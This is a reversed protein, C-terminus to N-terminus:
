HVVEYEKLFVVNGQKLVEVLKQKVQIAVEQAKSKSVREIGKMERIEKTFSDTSLTSMQKAVSEDGILAIIAMGKGTPEGMKFEFDDSTDPIILTQGAQLYGNNEGSNKDPFICNVQGKSDIDWIVLYGPQQSTNTIQFKLLEGIRLKEHPLIKLSLVDRLPVTPSPSTSVSFIAKEELDAASLELQPTLGLRCVSRYLECAEVSAQKVVELIEKHSVKGKKEEIIKLFASTFIGGETTDIAVQNSAVASYAILEGQATLSILSENTIAKTEPLPVTFSPTKLQVGKPLSGKTVTGSHCADIVVLVQRGSLRKLRENIEDDTIMGKRTLTTEVPCLTEDLGDSEDGETDRNQAGHGSFYFLVKDGAQSGSLWELGELINQRTAQSDTLLRVQDGRYIALKQLLQLVKRADTVSGKLPTVHQYENIGVILARNEAYTPISFSIFLGIFLCNLWNTLNSLFFTSLYRPKSDCYTLQEIFM